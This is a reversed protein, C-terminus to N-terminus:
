KILYSPSQYVTTQSHKRKSKVLSTSQTSFFEKTPRFKLSILTNLVKKKLIEDFLQFSNKKAANFSSTRVKFGAIETIVLSSSKGLQGLKIPQHDSLDNQSMLLRPNYSKKVVDTQEGSSLELSFSILM